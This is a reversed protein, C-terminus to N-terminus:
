IFANDTSLEIFEEDSIGLINTCVHETHEGLCPASRKPRAPTKSLKSPQGLHSFPGLEAHDLVWLSGRKKLQPDEYLDEVSQVVGAAIGHAQMIEMIEVAEHKITWEEVLRNLEEENNKRERNTKFEPSDSLAPNGIVKCLSQWEDDTFVAITCWRDNGRCRYAAHPAVLPHSNGNGKSEIGNFLYHLLSSGMFQLSVELQSIDLLQGKGTRKRYDLAAFLASVAFWPSFFDSYALPLASPNRDPWGTSFVFGALSNLHTGLGAFRSYPGTQGQNSTRLMIIDPKIKKLDDYGFGLKEMVGPMFNEVVIDSRVVIKRAIEKAGINNLDLAICSKNTNYYAYSGARDIGPKNDKYPLTTRLVDPKRSSEIRIVEAGYDALHKTLIPGALAWSFDAVKIGELASRNM